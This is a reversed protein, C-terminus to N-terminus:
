NAPTRSKRWEARALSSFMVVLVLLGGVILWELSGSSEDPDIGFVVEIWNRTVLTLLFLGATLVALATELWFRTRLPM